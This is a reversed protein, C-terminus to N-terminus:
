GAASTKAPPEAPATWRLSEAQYIRGNNVDQVFVAVGCREPKWGDGLQLPFSVTRPKSRDLKLPRFEFSRVAYREVLTKGANEGSAVATSVPDEWVAAGILLDRGAVVASRAALEVILTKRGPAKSDGELRATISTGPKEELGRRLASLAKARDTGLMPVRGDVMLMPTFYLYDVKDINNERVFIRSYQAQRESYTKDSFTDIWPTNFYDVHFALPVIKEPGYGMSKLAGLL